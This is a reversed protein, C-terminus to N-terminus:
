KIKNCVDDIINNNIGLIVSYVLYEEWLKLQEINKDEIKSFDLLYKRLGELRLNIEKGTNSRVYPDISNLNRYHIISVITTYPIFMSFTFLLFMIVSIIIVYM